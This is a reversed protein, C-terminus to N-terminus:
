IDVMLKPATVNLSLGLFICIPSFQDLSMLFLFSCPMSLSLSLFTYITLTLFNLFSPSSSYAHTGDFVDRLDNRLVM